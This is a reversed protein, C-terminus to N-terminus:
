LQLPSIKSVHGTKHFRKMKTYFALGAIASSKVVGITTVHVGSCAMYRPHHYGLWVKFPETIM